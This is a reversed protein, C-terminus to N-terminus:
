SNLATFEGGKEQFPRSDRPITVKFLTGSELSSEVSVNGGHAEAVGRVLTLGLGWGKKEGSHATTSRHFPQFLAQQDALPIPNGFNHVTIQVYNESQEIKITILEDSGGYKVANGLLNELVRRIGDGNWFGTIPNRDVQLIFRDGLATSMDRITETVILRMDCADMGMSLPEGARIRNADLLDKIMKDMRDISCIVKLALENNKEIREPRKTILQAAMKAATLPTRLDHTLISVFQERLERENELERVYQHVNILEKTRELFEERRRTDSDQEKNFRDLSIALLNTIATIFKLDQESLVALTEFQLMGFSQLSSLSLPVTIYKNKEELFVPGEQILTCRPLIHKTVSDFTEVEHHTLPSVLYEYHQRSHDFANRIQHESTNDNQWVSTICEGNKKEILLITQFSITNGLIMFIEPFTKEVTIFGASIKSIEFLNELRERSHRTEILDNISNEIEMSAPLIDGTLESLVTLLENILFHFSETLESRDDESFQHEFQDVSIGSSDVSLKKLVPYKDASQQLVSKLIALLTVNNLALSARHSLNKLAQGFLCAVGQSPLGEAAKDLLSNIHNFHYHQSM